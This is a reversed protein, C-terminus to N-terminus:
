RRCFSKDSNWIGRKRFQLPGKDICCFKAASSLSSISVSPPSTSTLIATAAKNRNVPSVDNPEPHILQPGSPLVSDVLASSCQLRTRQSQPLTYTGCVQNRKPDKCADILRLLSERAAKSAELRAMSAWLLEWRSSNNRDDTM